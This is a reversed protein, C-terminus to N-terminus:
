EAAFALVEEDTAPISYVAVPNAVIGNAARTEERNPTTRDLAQSWDLELQRQRERIARVVAAPDSTRGVGHEDACAECECTDGDPIINGSDNCTLCNEGCAECIYNGNIDEQVRDETQQTECSECTQSYRDACRECWYNGSVEIAEDRVVERSCRDCSTFADHYCDSCYTEGGETSYADDDNLRRECSECRCRSIYAHGCTSHPNVDGDGESVIEFHDGCDEVGHWDVYPMIYCNRSIEVKAMKAGVLDGPVIGARKAYDTFRYEDGYVRSHKGNFTLSRATIKGEPDVLYALKLDGAAYVEVPHRGEAEYCDAGDAMCSAPGNEYVSRFDAATEAFKLEYGKSNFLAAAKAIEPDSMTSGFFRKLYRGPKLSTQRDAEGKADNETFAILTEDSTARHAFHNAAVGGTITAEDWWWSGEWPVPRYTGDILKTREREKWDSM